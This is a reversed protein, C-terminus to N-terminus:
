NTWESTIQTDIHNLPSALIVEEETTADNPGYTSTITLARKTTGNPDAVDVKV